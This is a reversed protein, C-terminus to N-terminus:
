LMPNGIWYLGGAVLAALLLGDVRDFLGGHGPILNGSDKAVARRKVWSEFFDGAQAVVAVLAGGALFAISLALFYSEDHLIFRLAFVSTLAAAVMGGFLGAWTKSPSISPAIKPGGFTRGSFYAGIDTAIVAALLPLFLGRENLTVIAIAALAVYCIGFALWTLRTSRDDPFRDVLGKWEWVLLVSGAAVFLSFVAGGAWLALAVIVIMIIASATRVPLDSRPTEAM